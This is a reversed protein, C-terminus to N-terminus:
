QWKNAVSCCSIFASMWYCYTWAGILMWLLCLVHQRQRASTSHMGIGRGAIPAGVCSCKSGFSGCEGSINGLGIHNTYCVVHSHSCQTSLKYVWWFVKEIMGRTVMVTGHLVQIKNLKVIVKLVNGNVYRRQLGCVECTCKKDNRVNKLWILINRISCILLTGYYYSSHLIVRIM